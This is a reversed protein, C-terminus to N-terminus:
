CRNPLKSRAIDGSNAHPQTCLAPFYSLSLLRLTFVLGDESMRVLSNEALTNSGQAASASALHFPLSVPVGRGRRSQSGIRQLPVPRPWLLRVEQPPVGHFELETKRPCSVADTNIPQAGTVREVKWGLTLLSESLTLRCGCHHTIM